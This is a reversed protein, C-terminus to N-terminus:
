DNYGYVAVNGTFTSSTFQLRFGVHQNSNQMLGLSQYSTYATTSGLFDAQIFTQDVVQPRSIELIGQTRFQDGRGLTYATLGLGVYAAHTGTVLASTGAYAYVAAADNGGATRMILNVNNNSASVHGTIIVRYNEYDSTFVGDIDVANCTTISVVGLDSVSGTGGTFTVAGPIINVLGVRLSDQAGEVTTAGTGGNAVTIPFGGGSAQSRWVGVTADYVFTEYVQGDVPNAPFDLPPM